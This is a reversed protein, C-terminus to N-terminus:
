YGWCMSYRTSHRGTGSEDFEIPSSNSDSFSPFFLPPYFIQVFLFLILNFQFASVEGSNLSLYEYLKKHQQNYKYFETQPDPNSLLKNLEADYKPCQAHLQWLM